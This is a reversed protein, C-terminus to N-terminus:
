APTAPPSPCFEALPRGPNRSQPANASHPGTTAALQWFVFAASGGWLCCTVGWGVSDCAFVINEPRLDKVVVESWKELYWLACLLQKVYGSVMRETFSGLAVLRDILEGGSCYDTVVYIFKYDQFTEFVKLLGPHNSKKLVSIEVELGIADRLNAKPIVKIARFEETVRHKAKHLRGNSGTGIPNKWDVEYFDLVNTDAYHDTLLFDRRAPRSM